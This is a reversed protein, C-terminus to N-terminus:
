HLLRALAAGGAAALFGLVVSAVAYALATWLRGGEAATLLELSFSSFTTFGGLVGVALFLRTTPGVGLTGTAALGAVLGIAFSGTVNVGFTAWPWAVDTGYRSGVWLNAGWRAVSGIAGGLAVLLLNFWGPGQVVRRKSNVAGDGQSIMWLRVSRADTEKM